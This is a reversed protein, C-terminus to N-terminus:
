RQKDECKATNDSFLLEFKTVNTQQWKTKAQCEAQETAIGNLGDLLKILPCSQWNEVKDRDVWILSIIHFGVVNRKETNETDRPRLKLIKQEEHFSHHWQNWSSTCVTVGRRQGRVGLSGAGHKNQSSKRARRSWFGRTM